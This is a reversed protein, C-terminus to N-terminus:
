QFKKAMESFTTFHVKKYELYDLLHIFKDFEDKNGSFVTFREEILAEKTEPSASNWPPIFITPVIGLKEQM